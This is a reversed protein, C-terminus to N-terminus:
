AAKREGVLDDPCYGRGPWGSGRTNPKNKKKKKTKQNTLRPKGRLTMESLFGGTGYERRKKRFLAGVALKINLDFFNEGKQKKIRGEVLNGGWEEVNGGVGGGGRGGGRGGKWVAGV